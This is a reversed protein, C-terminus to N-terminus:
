AAARATLVRRRGALDNEIAAEGLRGNEDVIRRVGDAVTESVELVLLGGEKLATSAAPILRRYSDLGEEGGHLAGDPDHAAVEVPLAAMESTTVYPPNSVVLDLAGGRELLAEVFDGEVIEIRDSVSAREANARACAIAEPSRDVAIMRLAPVNRLAAIAIAGTGTGADLALRGEGGLGRLFSVCRDVLVETEPRPIFVGDAVALPISYFETEGAIRQVPVGRSRARVMERFRAVEAESLPRDHQIYLDIRRKGLLSAMLLEADVRPSELGKERFFRATTELLPLLTWARPEKEM